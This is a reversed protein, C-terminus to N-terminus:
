NGALCTLRGDQTIIEARVQPDSLITTPFGPRNFNHDPTGL